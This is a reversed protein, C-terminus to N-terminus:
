GDPPIVLEDGPFISSPDDLDNAEVIADVSTGFREAIDWLTDGQQVEYTEPEPEATPTPTPEDPETVPDTTEVPQSTGAPTTEETGEDEDGNGCAALALVLVLALIGPRLRQM